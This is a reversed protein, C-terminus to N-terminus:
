HTNYFAMQIQEEHATLSLSAPVILTRIFNWRNSISNRYEKDDQFGRLYLIFEGSPIESNSLRSIALRRAVFYLLIGIITLIGPILAPYGVISALGIM